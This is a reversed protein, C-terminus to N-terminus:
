QNFLRRLFSLGDRALDDQSAALPRWIAAAAAIAQCEPTFSEIVCDGAYNIEKLGRALGDWDVQGSGPSGRDSESADIYVLDRGSTKVAQSVDKEEINMHFTYLHIKVSEHGVDGVLRKVQEATNILDTEFRNLAEIALIVGHDAAMQAAARLGVVAREWEIKRQEASVQRRKGVASYMPGVMLRANWQECLKLTARIYDLSEQRYVPDDHTLDRTPGFAGSVYPRLGTRNLAEKIPAPDILAPDEVAITFVDFGMEAAQLIL